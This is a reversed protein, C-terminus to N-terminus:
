FLSLLTREDDVVSDTFLATFAVMLSHEKDEKTNYKPGTECSLYKQVIHTKPHFSYKSNNSQFNITCVIHRRDKAM